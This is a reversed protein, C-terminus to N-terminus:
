RVACQRLRRLVLHAVLASAIPAVLNLLLPTGLVLLPMFVSWPFESVTATQGNATMPANFAVLLLEVILCLGFALSSPLSECRLLFTLLVFALAAVSYAPAEDILDRLFYAIGFGFVVSVTLRVLRLKWFSM